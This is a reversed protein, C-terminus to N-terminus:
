RGRRRKASALAEELIKKLDDEAGTEFRGVALDATVTRGSPGTFVVVAMSSQPLQDDHGLPGTGFGYRPQVAAEWTAGSKDLFRRM